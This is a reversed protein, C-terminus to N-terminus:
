AQDFVTVQPTQSPLSGSGGGVCNGPITSPDLLYAEWDPIPTASGVCFLQSEGTALGTASQAAAALAAPIPSRFEGLGGRLTVAPPGQDSGGITLTFGARPSFHTERPLRDTRYGFVEEVLPNYLPANGFQSRELRAGLTVQLAQTPRWTDGLYLASNISTSNRDSPRLTRTFSSPTGAYLDALTTYSFTGTLNSAVVQSSSSRNFLMGAKVRHAGAGPILSLEESIEIDRSGRRQSLGSNGGFSLNTVTQADPLASVVQVRGQPLDEFAKGRQSSTSLYARFENIVRGGFRSSLTAMGGGGSSRTTGGSAPVSLSGVGTPESLSNRWDGRVTLTQNNGLMFDLRAISSLNDTTRNTLSDETSLPLGHLALFDLFRSASDPALGLRVLSAPSASLLSQLGDNRFRGQGSLFFFVKNRVLPGGFGASIQHQTFGQAFATSDGASVSLDRDRLGYNGTGRYSNTGSMTTTAVQGGSFQGRAVDYSNTIVRTNRVADQPVSAGGFTLGDLTTSNSSPRQGAVSFGAATSDNGSVSVVGPALTALITLDSADIPLRAAREAPIAREITGPTPPGGDGGLPPGQRGGRVVIEQLRTVPTGLTINTILRDEDAQRAITRMVPTKGIARVILRYQGGGDPFLLTYRGRPDTRTTRTIQTELSTAEVVAEAVPQGASDRVVGTLVDTTTGVQAALPRGAILTALVAMLVFGGSRVSM